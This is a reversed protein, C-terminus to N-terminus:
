ASWRATYTRWAARHAEIQASNEDATLWPDGPEVWVPRVVIELDAELADWEADCLDEIGADDLLELLGVRAEPGFRVAVYAEAPPHDPAETM